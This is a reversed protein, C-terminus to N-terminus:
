MENGNRDENYLLDFTKDQVELLSLQQSEMLPTSFDAIKIPERTETKLAPNLLLTLLCVLIFVLSYVVSPLAFWRTKTREKELIQAMTQATFNPQTEIEPLHRVETTVQDLLLLEQRCNACDELHRRIRERLRNDTEGDQYSSLYPKIKTCTQTM